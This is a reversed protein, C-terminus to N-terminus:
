IGYWRSPWSKVPRGFHELAEDLEPGNMAKVTDGVSPNIEVLVNFSRLHDSFARAAQADFNFDFTTCADLPAEVKPNMASGMRRSWDSLHLEYAASPTM